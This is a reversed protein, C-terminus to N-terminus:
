LAFDQPLPMKYLFLRAELILVKHNQEMVINQKWAKLWHINMWFAGDPGVTLDWDRIVHSFFDPRYFSGEMLNQEMVINPKWAVLWHIDMGFQLHVM